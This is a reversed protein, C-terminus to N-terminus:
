VWEPYFVLRSINGKNVHVTLWNDWNAYGSLDVSSSWVVNDNDDFATIDVIGIGHGMFRSLGKWPIGTMEFSNIFTPTAFSIAGGTYGYHVLPLITV